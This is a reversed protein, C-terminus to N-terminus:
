EAHAPLIRVADHQMGVVRRSAAGDSAMIAWPPTTCASIPILLTNLLFRGSGYGLMWFDEGTWNFHGNDSGIEEFPDEFYLSGHTVASDGLGARLGRYPRRLSSASRDIARAQEVSPTAVAQDSALEDHFPDVMLSCGSTVTLIWGASAVGLLARCALLMRSM